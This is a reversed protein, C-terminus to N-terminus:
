KSHTEKWQSPTMGTLKKFKQYFGSENRYGSREAIQSINLQSNEILYKATDIRTSHLHYMVTQGTHKKFLDCLYNPHLHVQDAIAQLDLQQMYNRRIFYVVQQVVANNSDIVSHQVQSQTCWPLLAACISVVMAYRFAKYNPKLAGCRKVMHLAYTVPEHAPHNAQLLQPLRLLGDLLPQVFQQQFYYEETLSLMSPSFVLYYVAADESSDVYSHGQGPTIILVEGTQVTLENGDLWYRLQGEKVWVIEVEPHHHPQFPMHPRRRFLSLSIPNDPTGRRKYLRQTEM